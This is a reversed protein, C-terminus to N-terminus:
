RSAGHAREWLLAFRRAAEKYVQLVRVDTIGWRKGIDEAREGAARSLLVDRTRPKLQALVVQVEVRTAEVLLHDEASPTEDALTSGVLVPGSAGADDFWDQSSDGIVAGM